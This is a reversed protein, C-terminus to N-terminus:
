VFKRGKNNYSTVYDIDIGIKFYKLEWTVFEM